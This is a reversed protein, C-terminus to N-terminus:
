LCFFIKHFPNRNTYRHKEKLDDIEYFGKKNSRIGKNSANRSHEGIFGNYWSIHFVVGFFFGQFSM